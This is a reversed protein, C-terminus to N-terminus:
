YLSPWPGWELATQWLAHSSYLLCCFLKSPNILPSSPSGSPLLTYTFASLIELCLHHGLPSKFLCIKELSMRIARLYMFLHKTGSMMLSICILTVMLHWTMTVVTAIMRGVRVVEELFFGLFYVNALIHLFQFEWAKSTPIYFSGVVTSSLIATGGLPFLIIIRDLLEVM